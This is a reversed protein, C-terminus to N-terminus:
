LSGQTYLSCEISRPESNQESLVRLGLGFLRYDINIVINELLNFRLLLLYVNQAISRIKFKLNKQELKKSTKNM